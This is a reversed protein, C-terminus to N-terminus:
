RKTPMPQLPNAPRPRINTPWPQVQSTRRPTTKPQLNISPKPTPTIGINNKTIWKSSAASSAAKLKEKSAASSAAKLKETLLNLNPTTSRPNSWRRPPGLQYHFEHHSKTIKGQFIAPLKGNPSSKEFKCGEIFLPTLTITPQDLEVPIADGLLVCKRSKFFM